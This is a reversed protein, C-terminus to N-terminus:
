PMTTNTSLVQIEFLKAWTSNWEGMLKITCISAGNREDLVGFETITYNGDIQLTKTVTTAGIVAGITKLRVLQSTGAAYKKRLAEINSNFEVVLDLEPQMQLESHTSFTLSNDQHRKAVFHEPLRWTWDLLTQDKTSTGITGTADDIWIRTKAALASEVVRASLSATFTSTSIQRGVLGAKFKLAEDLAGSIELSEAFVYEVEYAGSNDGFEMTFTDLTNAATSSPAFTWQRATIDVASSTRGGQVAISLLYTIDEYTVEGDLTDRWVYSPQYNRHAKVLSNRQDMPQTVTRDSLNGALTMGMWFATAAVATGPTSEKGAQIRKLAALGM